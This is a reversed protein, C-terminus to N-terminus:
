VHHPPHHLVLIVFDVGIENVVRPRICLDYVPSLPFNYACFFYTWSSTCPSSSLLFPIKGSLFRLYSRLLVATFNSLILVWTFSCKHEHQRIENVLVYVPVPIFCQPNHCKYVVTRAQFHSQCQMCYSSTVCVLTYLVSITRSVDDDSKEIQM